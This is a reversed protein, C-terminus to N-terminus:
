GLYHDDATADLELLSEREVQLDGQQLRWHAAAAIMAGNDTCLRPHPIVLQLGAEVCAVRMERRLQSNAAVGGTVVVRSAKCQRAAALTKDVLVDVVAQQFSAALDGVRQPAHKRVYHLVATKVGSFSFDLSDRELYARPFRIAQPDGQGALRDIVPGGPYGLGLLKSVKDFAEGAADDRTHGLLHYAGPTDCYYLDTHGGSVVLCVFPCALDPAELFASCIHGELHNVPILPKGSAYALSKAFSLGVLLAGILGPGRTAAIADLDALNLGAEDLAAQYVPGIAEIHKRCALEPVVGGYRHHIDVQSAVVNSLITTGDAVIAVSTDDCSTDIGLIKAM